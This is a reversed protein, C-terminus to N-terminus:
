LLKVPQKTMVEDESLIRRIHEKCNERSFAKATEIASDALRFIEADGQEWRKALSATINLLDKANNFLYGNRGSEVIEPQGGGNIVVPICGFSMAEITTMGFHEAMEPKDALNENLGTAHWYITSQKYLDKLRALPLDIAFQVPLGAAAQQVEELYDRQDEHVQGVLVLSWDRSLEKQQIIEKFVRVLQLQKKNHGRRFFRGVHLIVPQKQDRLQEYDVRPLAISPYLVDADIGWYEKVWSATFRSNALYRSYTNLFRRGRPDTDDLRYPFSVVYYSLPSHSALDSGYSSNVFVDYGGTASAEHHLFAASYVRKRCYKLNVGFQESLDNLSFDDEAILDVPGFAQLAEAIVCAHNEGGGLTSWYKNYIGIRPFLGEREVFQNQEILPILEHLETLLKPIQKSFDKETTTTQHGQAYVRFHNLESEAKALEARWLSKPFHSALFLLRNRQTYYRFFASYEQSTSAHKHYVVSDPVYILQYGRERLRLSLETDEFYAFMRGAFVPEGRLVDRKVLMSGGCLATVEEELDFTGDDPHAFGRDMVEGHESVASGANNILYTLASSGLVRSFDLIVESWADPRIDVIKPEPLGPANVSLRAGRITEKGRLRLRYNTQGRAIALFLNARKRFSRTHCNDVITETGWEKDFFWKPYVVASEKLSDVDFYLEGDSPADEITRLQLPVFKEWFLIKGGVAGITDSQEACRVLESLWRRDARMDNNILCLYAGDALEVGVNIGEAFGLNDTLSVLKVSPFNNNVYNVSDDSSGNDVFILEYDEYDQALLSTL